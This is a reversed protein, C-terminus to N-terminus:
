PGRGWDIGREIDRSSYIRRLSSGDPHVLYLAHKLGQDIRIVLWRGDPSYGGVFANKTGGKFRTVWRLGKGNRGVTAVNASRGPAFDVGITVAIRKGDPSWDLHNGVAPRYPLLQKLGTGDIGISYLAHTVNDKKIRVFAVTKGNPSVKAAGDCGCEGDHIFPNATLQRLGTGDVQIMWLGDASPSLDRTYVLSSGDPTFSPSDQFGEPTVARVDSGDANMLSVLASDTLYHSFALTKGDPSWDANVSSTPGRTIKRLDTGDPRMTFMQGDGFAGGEKHFVLLGAPGSQKSSTATGVLALGATVACAGLLLRTPRTISRMTM